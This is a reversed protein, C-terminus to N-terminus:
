LVLINHKVMFEFGFSTDRSTLTQIKASQEATLKRFGHGEVLYHDGNIVMIDGASTSCVKNAWPRTDRNTVNFAEELTEIDSAGAIVTVPYTVNDHRGIEPAKSWISIITVQSESPLTATENM